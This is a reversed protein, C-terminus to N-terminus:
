SWKLTLDMFMSQSPRLTKSDSCLGFWSKGSRRGSESRKLFSKLGKPLPMLFPCTPGPLHFLELNALYPDFDPQIFTEMRDAAKYPCSPM